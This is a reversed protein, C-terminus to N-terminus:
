PTDILVYARPVWGAEGGSLEIQVWDGRAFLLRAEVGRNVPTDYRRPYAEGNGKRLLVGDQAIVVLPHRDEARLQAEELALAVAVLAAAAFLGLGVSLFLRRRLMWWRTLSLWALGYLGCAVLLGWGLPLRPLWPPRHRVPPRGFGGPQPYAVQSRAFTLQEQLAYDDPALRVGRRYALIAGPLDGALLCANGQDLFLGPNSVGGRRLEEFLDAAHRFSARAQEPTDRLRVGERFSEEARALLEADAAPAALVLTLL